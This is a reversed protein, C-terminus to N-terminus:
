NHGKIYGLDAVWSFSQSGPKHNQKLCRFTLMWFMQAMADTSSLLPGEWLDGRRVEKKEKSITTSSNRSIGQRQKENIPGQPPCIGSDRYFSVRQDARDWFLSSFSENEHQQCLCRVMYAATHDPQWSFTLGSASDTCRWGQIVLINWRFLIARSKQGAIKLFFSRSEDLLSPKLVCKTSCM